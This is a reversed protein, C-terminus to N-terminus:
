SLIFSFNTLHDLDRRKTVKATPVKCDMSPIKFINIELHVLIYMPTPTPTPPHEQPLHMIKLIVTYTKPPQTKHPEHISKMEQM